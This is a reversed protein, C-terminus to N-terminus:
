KESNLKEFLVKTEPSDKRTAWKARFDAIFRHNQEYKANVVNQDDRDTIPNLPLEPFTKILWNVAFDYRMQQHHNELVDKSDPEKDAMNLLLGVTDRTVDLRFSILNSNIRETESEAWIEYDGPRWEFGLTYLDIPITRFDRPKINTMPRMPAIFYKQLQGLRAIEQFSANPVYEAITGPKGKERVCIVLQDSVDPRLLTWDAESDNKYKLSVPSSGMSVKTTGFALTVTLKNEANPAKYERIKRIEETDRPNKGAKLLTLIEQRRAEKEIAQRSIIEFEISKELVKGNQWALKTELRYKGAVSVDFNKAIDIQVERESLGKALDDPHFRNRVTQEKAYRTMPILNGNAADKLIIGLNIFPIISPVKENESTSSCKVSLIIDNGEVIASSSKISASLEFPEGSHTM